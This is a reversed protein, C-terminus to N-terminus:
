NKTHLRKSYMELKFLESRCTARIESSIEEFFKDNTLKKPSTKSILQKVTEINNESLTLLKQSVQNINSFEKLYDKVVEEIVKRTTEITPAFLSNYAARTKLNVYVKTTRKGDVNIKRKYAYGARCIKNIYSYGKTRSRLNFEANIAKSLVSLDEGSHLLLILFVRFDKM